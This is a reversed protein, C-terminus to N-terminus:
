RMLGAARLADEIVAGVHNAPTPPEAANSAIQATVSRGARKAILGWSAAIVRTSCIGAELM